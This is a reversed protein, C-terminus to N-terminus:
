GGLGKHCLPKNRDKLLMEVGMIARKTAEDETKGYATIVLPNTRCAFYDERNETKLEFDTGQIKM